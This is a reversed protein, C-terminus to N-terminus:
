RHFFHNHSAWICHQLYHELNRRIELSLLLTTKFTILFPNVFIYLRGLGISLIWHQKEQRESAKVKLLLPNRLKLNKHITSTLPSSESHLAASSRYFRVAVILDPLHVSNRPSTSPFVSTRRRTNFTWAYIVLRRVLYMGKLSYDRDNVVSVSPVRSGQLVDLGLFKSGSRCHVVFDILRPPLSYEM